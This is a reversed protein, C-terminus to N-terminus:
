HDKYFILDDYGKKIRDKPNVGLRILFEMLEEQIQLMDEDESMKEVEIFSGLEEVVDLCITLDKYKAKRRVKNVRVVEKFGLEKIISHGEQANNIEVEHEISALQNEL